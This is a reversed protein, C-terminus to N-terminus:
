VTEWVQVRVKQKGRQLTWNGDEITKPTWDQTAWFQLLSDILVGADERTPRQFTETTLTKFGEKITVTVEYSM